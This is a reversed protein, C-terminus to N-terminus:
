CVTFDTTWDKCNGTTASFYGTDNDSDGFFFVATSEDASLSNTAFISTVIFFTLYSKIGFNKKM